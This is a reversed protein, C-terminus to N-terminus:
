WRSYYTGSSGKLYEREMSDLLWARTVKLKELMETIERVTHRGEKEWRMIRDEDEKYLAEVKATKRFYTAEDM